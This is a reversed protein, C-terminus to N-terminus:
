CFSSSINEVNEGPSFLIGLDHAAPLSSGEFAIDYDIRNRFCLIFGFLFFFYAVAEVWKALTEEHMFLSGDLFVARETPHSLDKHAKTSSEWCVPM